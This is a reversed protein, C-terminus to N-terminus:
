DNKIGKLNNNLKLALNIKLKKRIIKKEIINVEVM